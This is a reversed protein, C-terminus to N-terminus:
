EPYYGPLSFTFYKFRKTKDKNQFDGIKLVIPYVTCVNMSAMYFNVRYM